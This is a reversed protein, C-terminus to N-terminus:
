FFTLFKKASANSAGIKTMVYAQVMKKHTSQPVLFFDVDKAITPQLVLSHAVLAVDAAGTIGFTAAQQVNEGKVIKAAVKDYIGSTKMTEVAARGYPAVDPNAIAIKKVKDSLLINLGQKVDIGSGSKTLMVVRGVAYPKIDGVAMGNAKLKQPFSIDAAFFLDFPAGETIQAVLKGSAGFTAKVKDDKNAAEYAKIIDALAFKLDAAAAINLEGGFVIAKAVLLGLLIKKIM